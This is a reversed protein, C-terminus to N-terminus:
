ARLIKLKEDVIDSSVKIMDHSICESSYLCALYQNLFKHFKSLFLVIKSGIAAHLHNIREMRGPWCYSRNCWNDVSSAIVLKKKKNSPHHNTKLVLPQWANNGLLWFIGSHLPLSTYNTPILPISHSRLHIAGEIPM